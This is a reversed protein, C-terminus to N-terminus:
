VYVGIVYFVAYMLKILRQLQKNTTTYLYKDRIESSIYIYIHISLVGVIHIYIYLSLSLSIKHTFIQRPSGRNRSEPAESELTSFSDIITM